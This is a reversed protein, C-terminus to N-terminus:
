KGADSATVKCHDRPPVAIAGTKGPNAPDPFEMVPRGNALDGMVDISAAGVLRTGSGCVVLVTASPKDGGCGALSLALIIWAARRM